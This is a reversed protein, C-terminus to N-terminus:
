EFGRRERLACYRAHDGGQLGTQLCPPRPRQGVEVNDIEVEIAKRQTYAAGPFNNAYRHEADDTDEGISTLVQEAQLQAAGLREHRPLATEGTEDRTAQPRR